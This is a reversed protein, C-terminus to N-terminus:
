RRSVKLVNALLRPLDPSATPWKLYPVLAQPDAPLQGSNAQLYASRAQEVDAYLAPESGAGHVGTWLFRDLDVDVPTARAIVPGLDQQSGPSPRWSALVEYQALIDPSLAADYGALAAATPPFVGANAKRYATIAANFHTFVIDGARYRLQAFAQKLAKKSEFNIGSSAISMWEADTLLALEPAGLDPRTRALEKLQDQRALWARMQAELAADPGTTTSQAAALRADIAADTDRLTHQASANERRLSQEELGVQHLRQRLGDLERQQNRIQLLEYGGAGLALACLSALLTKHLSAMAVTRTLHVAATSALAKASIAAPLGAPVATVAHAPLQTALAGAGVVLGRRRLCARLSELARSVRKQAADDSTGLAVAIEHLPKNEFYRLLIATRDVPRLSEVAEDLLPAIATWDPEPTNVTEALAITQQERRTRRTESRVHDIATRRAVVHLWAVLPTDAPIRAAKHALEIFVAQTIDEAAPSSSVHRRAISCVLNVHREVLMRFAGNDASQLYATLLEHDTM